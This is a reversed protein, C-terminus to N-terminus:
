GKNLLDALVALRPDIPSKDCSCTKENLNTGCIPCLGRCDDKCLTKMPRTLFIAQEVYPLLDIEDGLFFHVGEKETEEEGCKESLNTFSEHFDVHMPISVDIGCRDCNGQLNCTIEGSVSIIRDKNKATGMFVLDGEALVINSVKEVEEKPLSFHFPETQGDVNKLKDVRIIMPM